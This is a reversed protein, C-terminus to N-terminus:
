VPDSRGATGQQGGEDGGRRLPCRAANATLVWWGKCSKFYVNGCYGEAATCWIRMGSVYKAHPCNLKPTM